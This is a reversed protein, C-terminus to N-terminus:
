YDLTMTHEARAGAPLVVQAEEFTPARAVVAVDNTTGFGETPAGVISMDLEDNGNEDHYATVAYTGAPLEDYECRVTGVAADLSLNGGAIPSAGPFGEATDWLACQISGEASRIGAVVIHLSADGKPLARGESEPEGSPPGEAPGCALSLLGLSVCLYISKM